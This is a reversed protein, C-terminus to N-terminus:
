HSVIQTNQAFRARHRDRLLFGGKARFASFRHRFTKTPFIGVGAFIFNASGDGGEWFFELVGGGGPGPFRFFKIPM